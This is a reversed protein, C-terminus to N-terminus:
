VQKERFDRFLIEIRFTFFKVQGQISSNENGWIVTTTDNEWYASGSFLDYEGGFGYSSSCPEM